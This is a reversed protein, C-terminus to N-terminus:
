SNISLTAVTNTMCIKIFAGLKTSWARNEDFTAQEDM